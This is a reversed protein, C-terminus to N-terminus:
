PILRDSVILNLITGNVKFCPLLDTGKEIVQTWCLVMESKTQSYYIGSGWRYSHTKLKWMLNAVKIFFSILIMVTQDRSCGDILSDQLLCSALLCVTCQLLVSDTLGACTLLHQIHCVNLITTVCLVFIGSSEALLGPIYLSRVWQKSFTVHKRITDLFRFWTTLCSSSWCCVPFGRIEQCELTQQVHDSLYLDYTYNYVAM